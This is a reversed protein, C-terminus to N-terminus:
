QRGLYNEIAQSAEAFTEQRLGEPISKNQVVQHGIYGAGLNLGRSPNRRYFDIDTFLGKPAVVQRGIKGNVKDALSECFEKDNPTAQIIFHIRTSDNKPQTQPQTQMNKM